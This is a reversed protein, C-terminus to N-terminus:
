KNLLSSVTIKTRLSPDKNDLELFFGRPKDQELSLPHGQSTINTKSATKEFWTKIIYIKAKNEKSSTFDDIYGRTVVGDVRREAMKNRRYTM